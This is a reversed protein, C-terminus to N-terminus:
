AIARQYISNFDRLIVNWNFFDAVMSRSSIKIEEPTRQNFNLYAERLGQLMEDTNTNSIVVGANANRIEDGLNTAESVLCPVGFSAAELVATPLGENRSPHVFLNLQSILEDKEQGYKSGFFVVKDSIGLSAVHKELAIREPGDGIIWLIAKTNEQCFKSFSDILVDLGKTYVDIRGCFGILYDSHNSPITSPFSEGLEFGYPVRQITLGKLLYNLGDSESKGLVHVLSARKLMFQEFLNFYIFKSFKSKRWAIRNYSGHPTFIFKRNHKKLLRSISYFVPIFGGHLHFVTEPSTEKIAQEIGQPIAFSSKRKEFLVTKFNRTPYDHETSASIGWVRVSFGARSQETALNYVVKNVGNMRQPNVKGLAIHVIEM